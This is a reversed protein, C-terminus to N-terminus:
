TPIHGVFIVIKKLAKDTVTNFYQVGGLFIDCKQLAVLNNQPNRQRM